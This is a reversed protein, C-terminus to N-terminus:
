SSHSFGSSPYTRQSNKNSGNYIYWVAIRSCVWESAEFVSGKPAVYRKPAAFRLEGVPAAAYRIGLFEAVSTRNSAAHGVLTGGTHTQVRASQVAGGSVPGFLAGIVAATLLFLQMIIVNFCHLAVSQRLRSPQARSPNGDATKANAPFTHPLSRSM